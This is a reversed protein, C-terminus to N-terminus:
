KRNFRVSEKDNPSGAGNGKLMIETYEKMGRHLRSILENTKKSTAIHKTFTDFDFDIKEKSKKYEERPNRYKDEVTKRCSFTQLKNHNLHVNRGVPVKLNEKSKNNEQIDDLSFKLKEKKKSLTITSLMSQLTDISKYLAGYPLNREHRRPSTRVNTRVSQYHNYSRSDSTKLAKASTLTYKNDKSNTSPHFTHYDRVVKNRYKQKLNQNIKKDKFSEQQYARNCISARPSSAYTNVKPKFSCVKFEAARILEEKRKLQVEKNKQYEELRKFFSTADSGKKPSSSNVLRSRSSPSFDRCPTKEEYERVPKKSNCIAKNRPSANHTHPSASSIKESSNKRISQYQKAVQSSLQEKLSLDESSNNLTSPFTQFQIQKINSMLEEESIAGKRLLSVLNEIAFESM